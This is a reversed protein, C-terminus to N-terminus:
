SGEERQMSSTQLSESVKSIVIKNDDVLNMNDTTSVVFEEGAQNPTSNEDNNGIVCFEVGPAWVLGAHINKYLTIGTVCVFCFIILLVVQVTTLYNHRVYIFKNVKEICSQSLLRGPGVNLGQPPGCTLQFDVEVVSQAKDYHVFRDSENAHAFESSNAGMSSTNYSLANSLVLVDATLHKKHQWTVPVSANWLLTVLLETIVWLGGEKDGELTNVNFPVLMSLAWKNWCTYLDLLQMKSFNSFLFDSDLEHVQALGLKLGHVGYMWTSNIPILTLNVFGTLGKSNVDSLSTSSTSIPACVRLLSYGNVVLPMHTIGEMPITRFAWESDSVPDAKNDWIGGKGTGRNSGVSIMGRLTEEFPLTDLVLLTESSLFSFRPRSQQRVVESSNVLSNSNVRTTNCNWGVRPPVCICWDLLRLMSGCTLIPPADKPLNLSTKCGVECGTQPFFRYRLLFGDESVTMPQLLVLYLTNGISKVEVQNDLIGKDARLPADLGKESMPDYLFLTNQEDMLKFEIYNLLIRSGLPAKIFWKCRMITSYYNLGTVQIYGGRTDNVEVMSGREDCWYSLENCHKGAFGRCCHDCYRGAYCGGGGYTRDQPCKCVGLSKDCTANNMCRCNFDCRPGYWGESCVSCHPDSFHTGPFCTCTMTESNCVGHGNCYTMGDCLSCDYYYYNQSCECQRSDPLCMAGNTGSCNGPCRVHTNSQELRAFEAACNAKARLGPASVVLSYEQFQSGRIESGYVLVRFSTSLNETLEIRVQEVNNARDLFKEEPQDTNSYYIKGAYDVVALDLDHVLSRKSGELALAIDTWVLTAKLIITEPNLDAAIADDSSFVSKLTIPDIASFCYMHTERDSIAKREVMWLQPQAAVVRAITSKTRLRHNGFAISLDLRGFGSRQRQILFATSHIMLAKMLSASPMNNALRTRLYERVLAAAGAVLGTAMSTGSKIITGCKSNSRASIVRLGGPGVLDPKQRNDYTPGFSYNPIIDQYIPDFSNYHAGVSLVNKCTAPRYIIHSALNGTSFLFLADKYEYIYADMLKEELSYETSGAYGWSNSFIRAGSKYGSYFLKHCDPDISLIRSTNSALDRFFLKAGPAVGNYRSFQMMDEPYNRTTHSDFFVSGVASGAVHTGHGDPGDYYDDHKTGPVHFAHYSIIKRHNLNVDPYHAVPQKPDHFYCSEVNVGTDYIAVIEGTGNLGADLLPTALSLNVRGTYGSQIIQTAHDNLLEVRPPSTELWRVSPHYAIKLVKLVCTRAYKLVDSTLNYSNNQAAVDLLPFTLNVQVIGGTEGLFGTPVAVSFRCTNSDLAGPPTFPEARVVDSEIGKYDVDQISSIRSLDAAVRQSQGRATSVIIRLEQMSQSPISSPYLSSIRISLKRAQSAFVDCNESNCDQAATLLEKLPRSIKFLFLEARSNVSGKGGYVDIVKWEGLSDRLTIPQSALADAIDSEDGTPLYALVHRSDIVHVELESHRLVSLTDAQIRPRKQFRLPVNQGVADGKQMQEEIDNLLSKPHQHEIVVYRGCSDAKYLQPFERGFIEPRTFGSFYTKGKDGSGTGKREEIQSHHLTKSIEQSEPLYLWEQLTIFHRRSSTLPSDDDPFLGANDRFNEVHRRVTPRDFGQSIRSAESGCSLLFLVVVYVVVTPIM